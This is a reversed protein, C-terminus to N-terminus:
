LTVFTAPAVYLQVAGGLAVILEPCPVLATTTLKEGANIEPVSLTAAVFAQPDLEARVSEIKDTGAIGPFIVPVVDLRQLPVEIGYVIEDTTFADPYLQDTGAPPLMPVFLPVDM